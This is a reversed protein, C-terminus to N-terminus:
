TTLSPLARASLTGATRGAAEGADEFARGRNVNGVQM